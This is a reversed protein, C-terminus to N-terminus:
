PTKLCLLVYCSGSQPHRQPSEFPTEWARAPHLKSVARRQCPEPCKLDFDESQTCRALFTSESTFVPIEKFPRCPAPSLFLRFGSAVSM